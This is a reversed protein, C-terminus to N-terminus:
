VIKRFFVGNTETELRLLRAKSCFVQAQEILGLLSLCVLLPHLGKYCILVSSARFSSCLKGAYVDLMCWTRREDRAGALSAM